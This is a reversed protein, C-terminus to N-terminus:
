NNYLIDSPWCELYFTSSIKAYGFFIFIHNQTNGHYLCMSFQSVQFFCKILYCFSTNTLKKFTGLHKYSM